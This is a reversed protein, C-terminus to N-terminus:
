EKIFKYIKQNILLKTYNIDISKLANITMSKYKKKDIIIKKLKFYAEDIDDFLIGNYNNIVLDTNGRIKRCIVPVSCSLSQILAVPLGERYSAHLLLDFKKIESIIDTKFNNLSINKLNKDKLIKKFYSKNGSGFARFEIKDNKNSCIQAFKIIDLYGKEKSYRSIIGIIKKRKEINIKKKYNKQLKIGVGKILINKKKLYKKTFNYDYNNINIYKDTKISFLIELFKFFLKKIFNSKSHFRYGHVFYVLNVKNFFLSMRIFHAAMPTNLLFIPNKYKINIKRIKAAERYISLFNFFDTFKKPFLINLKHFKKLKLNKTDRCMLSINFGKRKLFISLDKLFLNQTASQTSAIVIQKRM